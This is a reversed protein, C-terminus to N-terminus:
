AARNIDKLYEVLCSTTVAYQSLESLINAKSLQLKVPTRKSFIVNDKKSREDKLRTLFLRLFELQQKGRLLDEVSHESSEFYSESQSYMESTVEFTNKFLSSVNECDYVPTAETLELSILKDFNINNLNLKNSNDESSKELVRHAKIWINFPLIAKCFDSLCKEYLSVAINFDDSQSCFESMGFESSIINEFAQKRTYLNEVSYCPTIYFDQENEVPDDGFDNDIFFAVPSDKYQRHNKVKDRLSIVKSKGGCNIGTWKKNHLLTNLRISFYKEDEGEFFCVLISRDRSVAKIFDMFHVSSSIRAARLAEVRSM